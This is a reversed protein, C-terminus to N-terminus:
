SALDRGRTARRQSLIPPPAYPAFRLPSFWFGQERAREGQGVRHRRILTVGMLDVTM